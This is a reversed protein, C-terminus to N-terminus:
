AGGGQDSGTAFAHDLDTAVDDPSELGLYLRICPDRVASRSVTRGDNVAFPM